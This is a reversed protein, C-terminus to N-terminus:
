RGRSARAADAEAAAIVAEPECSKLARLVQLHVYSRCLTDASPDARLCLWDAAAPHRVDSDAAGRCGRCGHVVEQACAAVRSAAETVKREAETAKRQELVMRKLAEVDDPLDAM